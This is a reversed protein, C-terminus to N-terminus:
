VRARAFVPPDADRPPGAVPTWSMLTVTKRARCSHYRRPAPRNEGAGCGSGARLSQLAGHTRLEVDAIQVVVRALFGETLREPRVPSLDGADRDDHIALGAPRAAEREDLHRGGFARLGRHALEVAGVEVTARQPDVLRALAVRATGATRARTP